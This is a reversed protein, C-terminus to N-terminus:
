SSPAWYGEQWAWQAGDWIWQPAIWIWNPYAPSVYWPGEIWVWGVGGWRWFGRGWHPAAWVHPGVYARMVLRPGAYRYYPAHRRVGFYAHAGYRPAYYGYSRGAWHWGGGYARGGRYGHVHAGYYHGGHGGRRGHAFALQPLCLAVCFALVPLSRRALHSLRM